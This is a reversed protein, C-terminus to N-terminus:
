IGQNPFGSFTKRPPIELNVFKDLKRNLLMKNRHMKNRIKCEM